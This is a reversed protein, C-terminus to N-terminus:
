GEGPREVEDTNLDDMIDLWTGTLTRGVVGRM